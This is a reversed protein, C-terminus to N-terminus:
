IDLFFPTEEEMRVWGINNWAAIYRALFLKQVEEAALILWQSTASTKSLHKQSLEKFSVLESSHHQHWKAREGM